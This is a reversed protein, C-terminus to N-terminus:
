DFKLQGGVAQGVRLVQGAGLAVVGNMGFTIAGQLRDDQRYQALTDGVEPSAKATKPDINPIPCRSCPKGL